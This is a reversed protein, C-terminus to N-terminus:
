FSVRKWNVGGDVSVYMDPYIKLNTSAVGATFSLVSYVMNSVIRLVFVLYLYNLGFTVPCEFIM